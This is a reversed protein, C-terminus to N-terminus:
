STLSVVHGVKPDVRGELVERYASEVAGPGRGRAVELWRPTWEVFGHWAKALRGELGDRGWDGSRKKVRDPAFFLTPPPGPLPESPRTMRTWHTAGVAASHALRDGCRHHVASRVDASGSMDVYVVGADPLADIDDYPLVTDYVGLGEVFEVSGPSTLGVVEIGERQALLFATGLATKSSASSVVVASAGFFGEEDLFDDILWSTFFLPRLLMQESETDADYVPDADTRVYSNYAAPLGARHPAADVFGHADARGPTVVVHTSPPFYGYVRAGAELSTDGADAVDAFGWVPLRGWGDQAPFFSWYSMADGFVAYTINNATLGFADVALLAQGPALAIRPAEDFRCDHLDDRRVLFDV